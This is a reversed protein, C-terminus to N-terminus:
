PNLEPLKCKLYSTFTNKTLGFSEDVFHTASVNTSKNYFISSCALYISASQQLCKLGLCGKNLFLNQLVSHNFLFKTKWYLLLAKCICLPFLNNRPWCINCHFFTCSSIASSIIFWPGAKLFTFCCDHLSIKEAASNDLIKLSVVLTTVSIWVFKKEKELFLCLFFKIFTRAMKIWLQLRWKPPSGLSERMQHPNVSKLDLSSELRYGLPIETLIEMFFLYVFLYNFFFFSLSFFFFLFSFILMARQMAHSWSSNLM